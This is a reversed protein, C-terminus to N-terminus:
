MRNLSCCIADTLEFKEHQKPKPNTFQHIIYTFIEILRISYQAYIPQLLSLLTGSLLRATARRFAQSSNPYFYKSWNAGYLLSM